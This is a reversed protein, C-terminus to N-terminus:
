KKPKKPTPLEEDSLDNKSNKEQAARDKAAQRRRKRDATEKKTREAAEQPTENARKDRKQKANKALIIQKEEETKTARKKVHKEKIMESNEAYHRQNSQSKRVELPIESMNNCHTCFEIPGFQQHLENIDVLNMNDYQKQGRCLKNTHYTESLGIHYVHFQPLKTPRISNVNQTTDHEIVSKAFCHKCQILQKFLDPDAKSNMALLVDSASKCDASSHYVLDTLNKPDQSKAILLQHVFVHRDQKAKDKFEIIAKQKQQKQTLTPKIEDVPPTSNRGIPTHLVIDAKTGLDHVNGCRMCPRIPNPPRHGGFFTQTFEYFQKLTILTLHQECQPLVHTSLKYNYYLCPTGDMTERLCKKCVEDEDPDYLKYKMNTNFGCDPHAHVFTDANGYYVGNFNTTPIEAVDDTLQRLIIERELRYSETANTSKQHASQIKQAYISMAYENTFSPIPQNITAFYNRLAIMCCLTTFVEQSNLNKMMNCTYCCPVYNGKIYGLLSNLRDIGCGNPPRIGCSHCTSIKCNYVDKAEMTCEVGIIKACNQIQSLNRPLKNINKGDQDLLQRKRFKGCDDTQGSCTNGQCIGQGHCDQNTWGIVLKACIEPHMRAVNECARILLEIPKQGKMCNCSWCSSTSNHDHYDTGSNKIRDLGHFARHRPCTIGLKTVTKDKCECTYATPEGCGFCNEKIRMQFQEFTITSHPKRIMYEEFKRRSDLEFNLGLIKLYRKAKRRNRKAIISPRVHKTNTTKTPYTLDNNANDNSCADFVSELCIKELTTTTSSSKILSTTNTTASEDNDADKPDDTQFYEFLTELCPDFEKIVTTSNINPCETKRRLEYLKRPLSNEYEKSKEREKAIIHPNQRDRAHKERQQQLQRDYADPNKAHFKEQNEKRAQKIDDESANILCRKNQVICSCLRFETLLHIPYEYNPINFNANYNKVFDLSIQFHLEAKGCRKEKHILRIHNGRIETKVAPDKSQYKTSAVWVLQNGIGHVDCYNVNAKKISETVNANVKANVSSGSTKRTSSTSM